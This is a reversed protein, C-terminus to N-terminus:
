YEKYPVTYSTYPATLVEIPNWNKPYQFSIHETTFSISYSNTSKTELTLLKFRNVINLIIKNITFFTNIIVAPVSMKFQKVLKKPSRCLSFYLCLFSISILEMSIRPLDLTMCCFLYLRMELSLNRNTVLM